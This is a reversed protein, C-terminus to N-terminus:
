AQRASMEKWFRDIRSDLLRRRERRMEYEFATRNAAVANRIWRASLVPHKLPPRVSRATTVGIADQVKSM